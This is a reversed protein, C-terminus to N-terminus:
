VVSKRDRDNRSALIVYKSYFVTPRPERANEVPENGAGGDPLSRGRCIRLCLMYVTQPLPWIVSPQASSPDSGRIGPM